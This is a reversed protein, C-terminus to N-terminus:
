RPTLHRDQRGVREVDVVIDTDGASTGGSQGDGQAALFAAQVRENQFSAALARRWSVWVDECRIDSFWLPVIWNLDDGGRSKAAGRV